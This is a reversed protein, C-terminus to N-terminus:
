WGERADVACRRVLHPGERLDEDQRKQGRRWPWRVGPDGLRRGLRVLVESALAGLDLLFLLLVLLVVLLEHPVQVLVAVAPHAAHLETRQVVLGVLDVLRIELLGELCRVLVLVPVEAGLLQRGEHLEELFVVEAVLLALLPLLALALLLLALAVAFLLLVQVRLSEQRVQVRVLVALEAELLERREVVLHRLRAEHPVELRGVAVPVAMNAELLQRGEDLGDLLVVFVLLAVALAVLVHTRIDELFYEIKPLIELSM